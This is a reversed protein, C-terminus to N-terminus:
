ESKPGGTAQSKMLRQRIGPASNWENKEVSHCPRHDMAVNEQNVENRRNSVLM